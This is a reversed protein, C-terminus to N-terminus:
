FIEKDRRIPAKYPENCDSFKQIFRDFKLCTSWTGIDRGKLGEVYAFEVEKGERYLGWVNDANQELDGSEKMDSLQPRQDKRKEVDRSLQCLILIPINLDKALSSIEESIHSLELHRNQFKKKSRM